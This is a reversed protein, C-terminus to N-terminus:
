LKESELCVAHSIAPISNKQYVMTPSFLAGTPVILVKKFKGEKLNQYVYGYNILCSCVPGSGGATIEDIKNLDYLMSGCDNYNDKLDIKYMEKMYDKLIEKGFIGLDGTLILDYDSVKENNEELHRYITDAAAPAMAAGMNNVDKQNLDVIKGITASTVKVETKENTLMISAGGTSTFTALKPKPAGYEVPNRFQKEAVLNHSTTTCIINNAQKSEIINSAIIIEEASTACANYVGLYPVNTKNAAYSSAALQNQLDGGILIDIEDMRKNAKKLVENMALQGLKVESTELSKDLYYKKLRMDFYKKYPSNSELKGAITSTEKVYVNNFKM